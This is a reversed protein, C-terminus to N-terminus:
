RRGRAGHCSSHCSSHCVDVQFTATTSRAVSYASQLNSFLQQLNTVSITNGVAVGGNSVTGLAQLYATSLNAVQTQDYVFGSEVIQGSPNDVRPGGASTVNKIARLNRIRTYAATENLLTSYIGSATILTGTTGSGNIGITKGATTGGFVSTPFDTFPVSNTGWVIGSNATAVVYDAFRDIINQATINGTLTAM